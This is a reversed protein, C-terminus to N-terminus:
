TIPFPNGECKGAIKGKDPKSLTYVRVKKM